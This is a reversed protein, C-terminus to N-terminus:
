GYTVRYWIFFSRFDASSEECWDSVAGYISLQNVSIIVRFLLEATTSDGKILTSTKGGGKSKLAGGSLAHGELCQRVCCCKFFEVYLNRRMMRKAILTMTCQCSSSEIKSGKVCFKRRRWQEKSKGFYSCHQTDQSSEGGSCSQNEM